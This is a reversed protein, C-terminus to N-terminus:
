VKKQFAQTKWGSTGVIILNAAIGECWLHEFAALAQNYGKRPEITGVMIFAPSYMGSVHIHLPTPRQLSQQNPKNFNAGLHVWKINSHKAQESGTNKLYTTLENATTKSTCIVGDHRIIESVWRRHYFFTTFLFCEPMTIPLMDHLM